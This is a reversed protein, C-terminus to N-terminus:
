RRCEADGIGSGDEVSGVAVTVRLAGVLLSEGSLSEVAVGLGDEMGELGRRGM